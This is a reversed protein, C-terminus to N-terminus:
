LDLQQLSWPYERDTGATREISIRISQDTMVAPAVKIPQAQVNRFPMRYAQRRTGGALVITQIVCEIADGAQMNSTDLTWVYIGARTQTSLLIGPDATADTLQTGSAVLDISM